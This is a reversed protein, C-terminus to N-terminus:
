VNIREYISALVKKDSPIKGKFDAWKITGEHLGSKTGMIYDLGDMTSNPTYICSGDVFFSPNKKFLSVLRTYETPSYKQAVFM